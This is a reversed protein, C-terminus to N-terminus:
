QRPVKRRCERAFREFLEPLTEGLKRRKEPTSLEMACELLLNEEQQLFYSMRHVKKNKLEACLTFLGCAAEKVEFQEAAGYRSEWVSRIHGAELKCDLEAGIGIYFCAAPAAGERSIYEYAQYVEAVSMDEADAFHRDKPMQVTLISEDLLTVDKVPYHNGSAAEALRRSRDLAELLMKGLAEPAITDDFEFNDPFTLIGPEGSAPSFDMWYGRGKFHPWCLEIFYQNTAITYKIISQVYGLERDNEDKWGIFSQEDEYEREHYREWSMGTEREVEEKTFEPHEQFRQLLRHALQGIELIGKEEEIKFYEYYYGIRANYNEMVDYQMMFFIIRGRRKISLPIRRKFPLQFNM